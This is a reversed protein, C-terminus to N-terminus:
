VQLRTPESIHILSLRFEPSDELMQDPHRLFIVERVGLLKAAELQEQERTAALQDSKIDPDATGKDGNTCVVYVVDKGDSTWRRVTGAVGFEADDPHPTIVMIDAPKTMM